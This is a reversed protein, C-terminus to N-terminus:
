VTGDNAISVFDGLLSIPPAVVPLSKVMSSSISALWMMWHMGALRMWQRLLVFRSGFSSPLVPKVGVSMKSLILAAQM